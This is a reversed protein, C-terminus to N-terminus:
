ESGRGEGGFYGLHVDDVAVELGLVDEEPVGLYTPLCLEDMRSNSLTSIISGGRMMEGGWKGEEGAQGGM